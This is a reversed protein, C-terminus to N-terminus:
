DGPKSKKGPGLGGDPGSGQPVLPAGGDPLLGGARLHVAGCQFALPVRRGRDAQTAHLGAHGGARFRDVGRRALAIM